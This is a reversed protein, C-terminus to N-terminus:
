TATDSAGRGLAHLRASSRPPAGSVASLSGLFLDQEKEDQRALTDLTQNRSASLFIEPDPLHTFLLDSSAISLAQPESSSTSGHIYQELV